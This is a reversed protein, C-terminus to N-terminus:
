IVEQNTLLSQSAQIFSLTELIKMKEKVRILHNIMVPKKVGHNHPIISYFDMSLANVIGEKGKDGSLLIKIISGLITYCKSIQHRQLRGLPLRELDLSMEEMVKNM